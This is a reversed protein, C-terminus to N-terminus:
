PPILQSFYNPNILFLICTVVWAYASHQKTFPMMHCTDQLWLSVYIPFSLSLSVSLSFSPSPSLSLFVSLSFYLSILLHSPALFYILLHSPTFIYIQLHSPTFVYIATFRRPESTSVKTCLVASSANWYNSKSWSWVCMWWFGLGTGFQRLFWRLFKLYCSWAYNNVRVLILDDTM